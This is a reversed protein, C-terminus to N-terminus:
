PEGEFKRAISRLQEEYLRANLRYRDTPASLGIALTSPARGLPVALCSLGPSYEEDDVSLWDQRIKALERTLSGIDTITKDTRRTLNHSQLYRSVEEPAGMALLLKGSARAHADGSTGPALTSAAVAGSGRTSAFVVIEGDLWGVVYASEGTTEAVERVQDQLSDSAALQSRFGHAISAVALGLVYAKGPARRLMNIGLLTHLLHYVVQKPLGQRKSIEGATVGRPGAKAVEILVMATRAATQIRPKTTSSVNDGNSSDMM